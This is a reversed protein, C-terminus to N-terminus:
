SPVQEIVEQGKGACEPCVDPAGPGMWETPCATCKYSKHAPVELATDTSSQESSEPSLEASEAKPVEAVEPAAEPTVDVAPTAEPVVEDSIKGSGSCPKCTGLPGQKLWPQDGAGVLGEGRCNQCTSM